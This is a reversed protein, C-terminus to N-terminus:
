IFFRVIYKDIWEATKELETINNNIGFFILIPNLWNWSYWVTVASTETDKMEM